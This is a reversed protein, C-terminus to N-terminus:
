VDVCCCERLRTVINASKSRPKRKNHSNLGQGFRIKIRRNNEEKKNKRERGSRWTVEGVRFVDVYFLLM